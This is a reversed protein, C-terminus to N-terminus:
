GGSGNDYALRVLRIIATGHYQVEVVIEAFTGSEGPGAMLIMKRVAATRSLGATASGTLAAGDASVIAGEVEKYGNYDMMDDWASRGTEGAESGDPDSFAKSLVEEMLGQALSVALTQRAEQANNQAGATFPAIVSGAVVALLVAAILSELLTLGGSHAPRRTMM